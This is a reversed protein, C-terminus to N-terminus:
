WKLGQFGCVVLDGESLEVVEKIKAERQDKSVVIVQDMDTRDVPIWQGQFRVEAPITGMRYADEPAIGDAPCPQLTVDNEAPPRAGHPEVLRLITKLAEEDKAFITLNVLSIDKKRSGIEIDNLRFDGGGAHILDVVKTLTLSDIIHGRMEVTQSVTMATTGM